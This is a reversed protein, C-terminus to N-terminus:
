SDERKSIDYRFCPNEKYNTYMLFIKLLSCSSSVQFLFKDDELLNGSANIAPILLHPIFLPMWLPYPMLNAWNTLRLSFLHIEDTMPTPNPLVATDWYISAVKFPRLQPCSDFSLRHSSRTRFWRSSRM